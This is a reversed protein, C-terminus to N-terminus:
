AGVGARIGRFRAPAAGHGVHAIQVPEGKACGPTGWVRWEDRGGVADCAGWFEPTLATYAGNKLMAGLAGDVIEYGIECGFHFNVRKDDLSWSKPTNLLVGRKTDRIIKDLSWDGPELNVNTMRILPLNFGGQARMTGGSRGGLEAATERSTLYNVHVGRDMIVTRQAAVGEDDYGYSGLGGPITADATMNVQPSGYVFSGLGEPELFSTGAFTAESGLVRDLEIPHGCSEHIQLAVMEAGLVLDQPGQPCPKADLLQAAERGLAASRGALDLEEVFEWGGSVYDGFSRRQTDGHGRAYATLSAGTHTIEQEIRSGETSLYLKTERWMNVGAQAVHVAETDRMRACARRLLELRDEVPVAFPDIAVPTRWTANHAPEPALQVGGLKPSKASARAVAVAQAVAQQWATPDQSATGAFGWAGDCLARVGLGQERSESVAEVEGNRLSLGQAVQSTVRIDAYQAGKALAASLLDELNTFDASV